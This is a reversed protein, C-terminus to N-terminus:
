RRILFSRLFVTVVPEGLLPMAIASMITVHGLDHHGAPRRRAPQREIRLQAVAVLEEPDHPVEPQHGLRHSAGKGGRKREYLQRERRAERDRRRGRDGRRTQAAQQMAEPMLRFNRVVGFFEDGHRLKPLAAAVFLLILFSRLFVTVVPEGLLPMAIASMITVHGLHTLWSAL